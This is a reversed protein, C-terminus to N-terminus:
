TPASNKRRCATLGAALRAARNSARTAQMKAQLAPNALASVAKNKRRAAASALGGKRHFRAKKVAGMKGYAAKGGRAANHARNHEFPHYNSPDLVAQCADCRVSPAQLSEDVLQEPPLPTQASAVNWVPNERKIAEREAQTAARRTEYREIRVTVIEKFWGSRRHQCLRALTSLSVGVYLLRGEGDFHRYLEAM